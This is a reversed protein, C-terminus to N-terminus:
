GQSAVLEVAEDVTIDPPESDEGTYQGVWKDYTEAWRGDEKYADFM